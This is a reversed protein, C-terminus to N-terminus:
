REKIIKIADRINDGLFHEKNKYFERLLECTETCDDYKFYDKGDVVKHSANGWGMQCNTCPHNPDPPQYKHWKGMM